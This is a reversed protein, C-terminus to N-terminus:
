GDELEVHLARSVVGPSFGRGLLFRVARARVRPDESAAAEPHRKALAARALQLEDRTSMSNRVAERAQERTVGAAVLKVAAARPGVRGRSLLSEAQGRAFREDDLYGHSRLRELAKAIEEEVHGARALRQRLERETRDRVGLLRLARGYATPPEAKRKSRPPTEERSM